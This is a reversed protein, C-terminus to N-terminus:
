RVEKILAIFMSATWSFNTTSLGQKTLPHYNERLPEYAHEKSNLINIIKHKIKLALKEDYNYIGLLAFYLFSIWVPGRWYDTPDFRDNDVSVTPFPFETLFNNPGLSNIMKKAIELSAIKAYFPLFQEISLGYEVLPTKKDFKIDHYFGDKDSYMFKNINDKLEEALDNKIKHNKMKLIKEIQVLSMLETYYFSNLCVSNQDGVYGIVEEDKYNPYIEMRDWDFRPANDMGSEWSIAEIITRKSKFVNKADVTAGYSLFLEPSQSRRNNLWWEQFKILKPYIKKLWEIDKTKRYVKLVSWSALPPKTNRENWNGGVGGRDAAHNYFICDPIMGFDKPRLKDDKKIQHDFMSDIAEKALFPFFEAVGYSIKFVDWAYAGIFDAYAISPIVTHSKIKGNPALWNGILTYISKIVVNKEGDSLNKCCNFYKRWRKNCEDITNKIHVEGFNIKEKKKNFYFSHYWNTKLILDKSGEKVVFGKFKYLVNKANEKNEESILTIDDNHYIEFTEKEEKNILPDFNIKISDNNIKYDKLYKIWDDKNEIGNTSKHKVSEYISIENLLEIKLYKKSSVKLEIDFLVDEQNAFLMKKTIAIQYDSTKIKSKIYLIGNKEEIKYDSFDKIIENNVKIKINSLSHGINVPVEQSIVMPGTFKLSKDEPFYYGFWAGNDSFPNSKNTLKYNFDNDFPTTQFNIEAEANSLRLIGSQSKYYKKM